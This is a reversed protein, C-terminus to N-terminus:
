ATELLIYKFVGDKFLSTYDDDVLEGNLTLPWELDGYEINLNPHKTQM